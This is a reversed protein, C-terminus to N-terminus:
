RRTAADLKGKQIQSAICELRKTLANTHVLEKEIDERIFEYSHQKLKGTRIALYDNEHIKVMLGKMSFERYGEESLNCIFKQPHSYAFRIVEAWGVSTAGESNLVQIPEKFSRLRGEFLASASTSGGSARTLTIGSNFVAIYAELKKHSELFPQTSLRQLQGAGGNDLYDLNVDGDQPKLAKTPRQPRKPSDNRKRKLERDEGTPANTAPVKPIEM